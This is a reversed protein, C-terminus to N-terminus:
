VSTLPWAGSTQEGTGAQGVSRAVVTCHGCEVGSWVLYEVHHSGKDLLVLRDQKVILLIRSCIWHIGMLHCLFGLNSNMKLM